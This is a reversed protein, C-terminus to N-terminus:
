DFTMHRGKSHRCAVTTPCFIKKWIFMSEPRERQNGDNEDGIITKKSLELVACKLATIACDALTEEIILKSVHANFMFIM